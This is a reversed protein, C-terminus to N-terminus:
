FNPFQPGSGQQALRTLLAFLDDGTAPIPQFPSIAGGGRNQTLAALGSSVGGFAQAAPLATGSLFTGGGAGAGAAPFGLSAAYAPGSAVPGINAAAGAAAPAGVLFPAAGSGALTAGLGLGAGKLAGSAGDAAGGAISPLATAPGIVNGFAGGLMGLGPLVAAM